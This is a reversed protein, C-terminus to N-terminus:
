IAIPSSLDFTVASGSLTTWITLPDTGLQESTTGSASTTAQGPFTVPIAVSCTNGNATVTAGTISKGDSSYVYALNPNCQSPLHTLTPKLSVFRTPLLPPLPIPPSKSSLWATSLNSPLTM